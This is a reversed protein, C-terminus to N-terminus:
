PTGINTIRIFRGNLARYYDSTDPPPTPNPEPQPTPKTTRDWIWHFKPLSKDTKM